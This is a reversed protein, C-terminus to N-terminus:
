LLTSPVLIASISAVSALRPRKESKSVMFVLFVSKTALSQGRLLLRMSLAGTAGLWELNSMSGLLPWAELWLMMVPVM